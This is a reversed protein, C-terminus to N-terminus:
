VSSRESWALLVMMAGIFVCGVIDVFTFTVGLMIVSFVMASVPELVCAFTGLLAGADKLGQSTFVYGLGAGVFITAVLALWGDMEFAVPVAWPQAVPLLFIGGLVLAVSNVTMTGYKRLPELPITNHVFMLFGDALCFLLPVLGIVLQTVDGKTAICFVGAFALVVCLMESGRPMRKSRICTFIMVYILGTQAILSDCAAGATRIAIVYVVQMVSMGFIAYLLTLIMSRRDHFLAVLSARDKAITIGLFVIGACLLRVCGVWSDGVDYHDTLYNICVGSFGWCICGLCGLMMGRITKNM